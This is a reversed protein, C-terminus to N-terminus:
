QLVLQIMRLLGLRHLPKFAVKRLRLIPIIRGVLRRPQLRRLILHSTPPMRMLLLTHRGSLALAPKPRHLRKLKFARTTLQTRDEIDLSNLPLLLDLFLEQIDRWLLEELSLRERLWPSLKLFRTM